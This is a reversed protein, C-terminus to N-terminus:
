LITIKGVAYRLIKRVDAVTVANDGNVDAATQQEATLATKGVAARLALRVDAVTVRSDGNVDGKRRAAAEPLKESVRFRDVYIRTGVLDASPATGAANGSISLCLTPVYGLGEDIAVVSNTNWPNRWNGRGLPLSVWGTFGAPLVIAADSEVTATIAAGAEPTLTVQAGASLEGWYATSSDATPRTMLVPAFRIDKAARSADIYVNLYAADTWDTDWTAGASANMRLWGTAHGAKFAANTVQLELAKGSLGPATLGTEEVDVVAYSLSGEPKTSTGSGYSFAPANGEFGYVDKDEFAPPEGWVAEVGFPLAPYGGSNGLNATLMSDGYAYYIGEGAAVDALSIDVTNASVITAQVPFYRSRLKVAFGELAADPTLTALGDGVTDFTLTIKSNDEALVASVLEPGSYLAQTEYVMGLAAAAMREGVPQKTPPHIDTVDVEVDYLPIAAATGGAQTIAAIGEVIAANAASIGGLEGYAALQVAFFPLTDGGGFIDNWNDWLVPLGQELVGPKTRDAEGQYWIIGAAQFGRFPAIRANYYASVTGDKSPDITYGQETIYEKYDAHKELADQGIWTTISTGGKASNIIGIPMNLESYLKEAFYYAVASCSRVNTWLEGTVWMGQPESLEAGVSQGTSQLYIRINKNREKAQWADAETSQSVTWQMNSQGGAVWVEGFVVNTITATGEATAAAVTYTDFGGTQQPLSVEWTGDDAVTTTQTAVVQADRHRTLTVTLAAGATATGFLNVPKGQQLIMDDGFAQSFDVAAPGAPPEVHITFSDILVPQDSLAASPATGVANGSISLGITTVQALGDQLTVIAQGWPNCWAGLTLPYSVWGAFGAPLVVCADSDVKVTSSQGADDTLTVTTGEVPEGWYTGGGTMLVPMLRLEANAQAADVYFRLSTAYRWDTDWTVNTNYMMRLWGTDHGARFTEDTVTLQLAKGEIGAGYEGDATDVIAYSLSDEPKTDTASGYQWTPAGGELGYVLRDGTEVAESYLTVNDFFVSKGYDAAQEYQVAFQVYAVESLDQVGNKASWTQGYLSFPLKVWGVYGQPLAVYRSNALSTKVWEGDANQVQAAGSASGGLVWHEMGAPDIETFYLGLTTAGSLASTDVYVLLGENGRWDTKGSVLDKATSMSLNQGNGGAAKVTYELWQGGDVPSDALVRVSNFGNAIQSAKDDRMYQQTDEQSGLWLNAPYGEFGLVVATEDETQAGATLPVGMVLLAVSLLLALAQRVRNM